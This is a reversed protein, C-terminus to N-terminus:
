YDNCSFNNFFERQAMQPPLSWLFFDGDIAYYFIAEVEKFFDRDLDTVLTVFDPYRASLSFPHLLGDLSFQFRMLLNGNGHILNIGM